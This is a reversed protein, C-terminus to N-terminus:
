HAVLSQVLPTQFATRIAESFTLASNQCCPETPELTGNQLIIAHDQNL